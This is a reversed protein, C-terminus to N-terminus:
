FCKKRRRRVDGPSCGLTVRWRGGEHPTNVREARQPCGRGFRQLHPSFLRTHMRPLSCTPTSAGCASTSALRVSHGARWWALLEAGSM